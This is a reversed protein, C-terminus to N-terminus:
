DMALVIYTAYALVFVGGMPRSLKSALVLPVFLLTVVVAAATDNWVGPDTIAIPKIMATIGLVMSINLINSGLSNGVALDAANSRAAAVATMVEPLSTGLAVVTVGIFRESLDLRRALLMASSVFWQAGIILVIIGGILLAVHVYWNGNEDDDLDDLDMPPPRGRLAQRMLWGNYAMGILLLAAGEPRTISGGLCFVPVLIQLLLCIPIERRILSREVRIPSILAACGLVLLVNAVNSGNVNALAMDTSGDLAAAMSVCLEPTSTGFAVITLGVVLAPVRLTLALQGGGRVLMEAGFVLMLGGILMWVLFLSDVRLTHTAQSLASPAQIACRTEVAGAL